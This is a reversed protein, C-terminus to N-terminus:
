TPPATFDSFFFRSGVLLDMQMSRAVSDIVLIRIIGRESLIYM